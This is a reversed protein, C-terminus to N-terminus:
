WKWGTVDDLTNSTVNQLEKLGEHDVAACLEELRPLQNLDYLNFEPPSWSAAPINKLPFIQRGLRSELWLIRLTGAHKLILGRALYKEGWHTDNDPPFVLILVELHNRQFQKLAASIEPIGGSNVIALEKLNVIARFAAAYEPGPPECSCLRLTKLNEVPIFLRVLGIHPEINDCLHAVFVKKLAPFVPFVSPLILAPDEKLADLSDFIPQFLQKSQASELMDSITTDILPLSLFLSQLTAKHQFAIDFASLAAANVGLIEFGIESVGQPSNPGRSCVLSTERPFSQPRFFEELLDNFYPAPIARARIMISLLGVHNESLIRVDFGENKGIDIVLIVNDKSHRRFIEKQSPDERELHLEKVYRGASVPFNDLARLREPSIGFPHDFRVVVRQYLVATGVSNFKKNVLCAAHLGGTKVYDKPLWEFIQQLIENPVRDIPPVRPLDNTDGNPSSPSASDAMTSLGIRYGQLHHHNLISYHIINSTDKCTTPSNQLTTHRQSQNNFYGPLM